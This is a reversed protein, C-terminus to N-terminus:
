RLIGVGRSLMSGALPRADAPLQMDARQRRVPASPTHRLSFARTSGSFSIACSRPLAREEPPLFYTHHSGSAGRFDQV